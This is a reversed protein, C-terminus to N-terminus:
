EIQAHHRIIGGYMELNSNARVFVGKHVSEAICFDLTDFQDGETFCQTPLEIALNDPHLFVDFVLWDNVLERAAERVVMQNVPDVNGFANHHFYFYISTFVQIRHGRTPTADIFQRDITGSTGDRHDGACVAIRLSGTDIPWTAFLDGNEIISDDLDGGFTSSVLYALDSDAALADNMDDVKARVLDRIAVLRAKFIGGITPTWAM